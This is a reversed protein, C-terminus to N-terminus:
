RWGRQAQRRRDWVFGLVVTLLLGILLGLWTPKNPYVLDVGVKVCILVLLPLFAWRKITNM